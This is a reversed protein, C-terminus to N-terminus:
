YGLPHYRDQQTRVDHLVGNAEKVLDLWRGTEEKSCEEQMRDPDIKKDLEAGVRAASVLDKEERSIKERLAVADPHDADVGEWIQAQKFHAIL